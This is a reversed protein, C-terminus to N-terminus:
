CSAKVNADFSYRHQIEDQEYFATRVNYKSLRIEIVLVDLPINTRCYLRHAFASPDALKGYRRVKNGFARLEQTDPQFSYQNESELEARVSVSAQQPPTAYMAWGAYKWPHLGYNWILMRHLLPWLLLLAVFAVAMAKLRGPSSPTKLDSHM